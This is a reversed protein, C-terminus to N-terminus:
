FLDWLCAPTLCYVWVFVLQFSALTTISIASFFSNLAFVNISILLSVAFLLYFLETLFFQWSSKHVLNLFFGWESNVCPLNVCPLTPSKGYSSWFRILWTPQFMNKFLLILVIDLTSISWAGLLFVNNEFM